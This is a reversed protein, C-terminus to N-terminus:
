VWNEYPVDQVYWEVDRVSCTVGEKTWLSKMRVRNRVSHQVMLAASKVLAALSPVHVDTSNVQHLPRDGIVHGNGDVMLTSNYPSVYKLHQKGSMQALHWLEPTFVQEGQAVPFIEVIAANIPLFILSVLDSGTVGVLVAADSIIQLQDRFLLEGFIVLEANFGFETLAALLENANNLKRSESPKRLAIVVRQPNPTKTPDIGYQKKVGWALEMMNCDASKDTEYKDLDFPFRGPESFKVREFTTAQPLEYLFHMTGFAKALGMGYSGLWEPEHCDIVLSLDGIKIGTRKMWLYIYYFHINLQHTPNPGSLRGMILTIGPMHLRNKAPITAITRKLETQRICWPRGYDALLPRYVAACTSSTDLLISEPVIDAAKSPSHYFCTYNLQENERVAKACGLKQVINDDNFYVLHTTLEDHRLHSYSRARTRTVKPIFAARRFAYGVFSASAYTLVVASLFVLFLFTKTRVHRRNAHSSPPLSTKWRHM